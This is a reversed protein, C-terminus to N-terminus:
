SIWGQESKGQIPTQQFILNSLNYNRRKLIASEIGDQNFTQNNFAEVYVDNMYPKFAFGTESKTYVSSEDKIASPSFSTADCDM